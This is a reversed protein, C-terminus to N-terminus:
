LGKPTYKTASSNLSTFNTLIHMFDADLTGKPKLIFCKNTIYKLFEQDCWLGNLYPKHDCRGVVNYKLPGWQFLLQRIIITVFMLLSSNTVVMIKHNIHDYAHYLREWAMLDLQWSTWSCILGYLSHMIMIVCMRLLNWFQM